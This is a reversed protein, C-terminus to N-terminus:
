RRADLTINEHWPQNLRGYYLDILRALAIDGLVEREYICADVLEPYFFATDCFDLILFPKRQNRLLGNEFVYQVAGPFARATLFVAEPPATAATMLHEMAAFGNENQDCVCLEDQWTM